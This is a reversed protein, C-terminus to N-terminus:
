RGDDIAQEGIVAPEDFEYRTYAEPRRVYDPQEEGAGGARNGESGIGRRHPPVYPVPLPPLDFSVRKGLSRSGQKLASRPYGERGGDFQLSAEDVADREGERDLQSCFALSARVGVSEDYDDYDEIRREERPDGLDDSDDDDDSSASTRRRRREEDEDDVDDQVRSSTRFCPSRDLSWMSQDSSLSSIHTASKTPLSSPAPAATAAPPRPPRGLSGFATEVRQSFADM